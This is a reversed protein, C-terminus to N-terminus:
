RPRPRARGSRRVCRWGSTSGCRRGMTRGGLRGAGRTAWGLRAGQGGCMTSRPTSCRHARSASSSTPASRSTLPSRARAAASARLSWQPPLARACSQLEFVSKLSLRPRTPPPPAICHPKPLTRNYGRHSAGYDGHTELWHSQGQWAYHIHHLHLPPYQMVSGNLTDVADGFYETIREGPLLLPLWAMGLGIWESPGLSLPGILASRLVSDADFHECTLVPVVTTCKERKSSYGLGPSAAEGHYHCAFAVLESPQWTGCGAFWGGPAM